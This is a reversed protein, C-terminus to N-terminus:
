TLSDINEVVKRIALIVYKAYKLNDPGYFVPLNIVKSHFLYSKPYKEEFNENKPYEPNQFDIKMERFARFATLPCTSNPIDIDSVGEERLAHVFDERSVWKFGEKEYLVSFTYGSYTAGEPIRPFTFWPINALESLYYSIVENRESIQKDLDRFQDFLCSAAFPHIRLNLWAWTIAYDKTEPLSADMRSKNNAHWSVFMKQYFLSDNTWIFGWMWATVIKKAGLSWASALWFTWVYRGHYKAGHAHSSDELLKVGTRNCIEVIEDMDCPIGWMHTIIVAKTNPTILKELEKPNINGNDGADCLKIHCPFKLVPTGTAFFTYAPIIVEDEVKLDLAFFMNYIACTGSNVLLCHKLSFKKQLYDQLAYVETNNYAAVFYVNAEQKLFDLFRQSFIPHKFKQYRLPVIAEWGQICLKSM